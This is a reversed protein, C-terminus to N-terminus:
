YGKSAQNMGGKQCGTDQKTSSIPGLMVSFHKLVKREGKGFVCGENAVSITKEVIMNDRRRRMKQFDERLVGKRAAKSKNIKMLVKLLLREDTICILCHNTLPLIFETAYFGTRNLECNQM